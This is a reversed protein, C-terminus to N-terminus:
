PLPDQLCSDPSASHFMYPAELRGPCIVETIVGDICTIPHPWFGVALTDSGHSLGLFKGTTADYFQAQGFFPESRNLFLVNERECRGAVLGLVANCNLGYLTQIRWRQRESTFDAFDEIRRDFLLGDNTCVSLCPAPQDVPIPEPTTPDCRYVVDSSGAINWRCHATSCSGDCASTLTCSDLLNPDHFCGSTGSVMLSLALITRPWKM